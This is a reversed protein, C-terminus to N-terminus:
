ILTGPVENTTALTIQDNTTSTDGDFDMVATTSIVNMSGHHPDLGTVIFRGFTYGTPGGVVRNPHIGQEVGNVTVTFDVITGTVPNSLLM